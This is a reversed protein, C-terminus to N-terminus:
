TERGLQRTYFAMLDAHPAADDAWAPDAHRPDIAHAQQRLTLADWLHAQWGPPKPARLRRYATHSARSETLLDAVTM